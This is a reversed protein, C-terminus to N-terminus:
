KIVISDDSSKTQIHNRINKLHHIRVNKYNLKNMLKNYEKNKVNLSQNYMKTKKDIIINLNKIKFKIDKIEKITMFIEFPFLNYYV